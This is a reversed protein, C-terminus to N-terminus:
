NYFVWGSSGGKQNGIKRVAYEHKITVKKGAITLVKPKSLKKRQGEYPGLVGQKSKRTTEKMMFTIKKDKKNSNAKRTLQKFARRAADLPGQGDGIRYRGTPKVAKGNIEIVRFSRNWKNDGAGGHAEYKNILTELEALDSEFMANTYKPM